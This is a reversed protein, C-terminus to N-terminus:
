RFTLYRWFTNTEGINLTCHFAQEFGMATSKINKSYNECDHQDIIHKWGFHKM